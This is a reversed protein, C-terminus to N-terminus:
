YNAPNETDQNNTTGVGNDIVLTYSESEEETLTNPPNGEAELKITSEGSNNAQPSTSDPNSSNCALLMGALLALLSFHIIKKM